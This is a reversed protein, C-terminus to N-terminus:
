PVSKTRREHTADNKTEEREAKYNTDIWGIVNDINIRAVVKSKHLFRTMRTKEFWEVEDAKINITKGNTLIISYM